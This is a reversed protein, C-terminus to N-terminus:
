PTSIPVCNRRGMLACDQTTRLDAISTALWIGIATLVAVFVLAAINTRMRHTFDDADGPTPTSDRAADTERQIPAHISGPATHLTRPTFRVVRAQNGSNAPMPVKM